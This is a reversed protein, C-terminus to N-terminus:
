GRLASWFIGPLKRWDPRHYLGLVKSALKDAQRHTPFWFPKPRVVLPGELVCKEVWELLYTNHVWGIGSQPDALAGGPYGGWPANMIAYAIAPWHNIAVTGYRLRNVAQQFREENAAGARSAPHVMVGAGLTGWVRENVFEVARDLFEAPGAADLATEACACVFSEEEIWRPEREPDVDRVLTWPLTGPPDQEAERGVFRRFREAAGPYYAKRRPVRALVAEIKDLFKERDPWGRWTVILKCAICNFSANNVIMAAVNEAQFDLERRRYPGPVVIWPTVNGLESTIPKTLLPRGAARRAERDQGPPGWVIADHSAISGTIHVEDVLPHAVAAAGVEPGGYILRLFGAEILAQYAREFIPGLYENVPNMKLLVVRGEAFLKGFADIAPISSVNGAGLVLAIRESQTRARFDPALADDLNERSIGPQMWVDARFGRFLLDDYMGRAPFVQIRLRGNPGDAVEGPLQPRGFEDIDKLSRVLLRLYRTTALPGSAMEEGALPGDPAIGKAQCAACLWESALRFTGELCSEALRLREALSTQRYRVKAEALDGLVRDLEEHSTM